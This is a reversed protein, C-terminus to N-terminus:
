ATILAQVSTNLFFSTVLFAQIRQSRPPLDPLVVVTSMSINCGAAHSPQALRNLSGKHRAFIPSHVYHCGENNRSKMETARIDPGAHLAYPYVILPHFLAKM